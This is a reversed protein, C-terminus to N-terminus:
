ALLGNWSTFKPITLDRVQATRMIKHVGQFYPM